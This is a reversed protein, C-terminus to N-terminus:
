RSDCPRSDQGPLGLLRPIPLGACHPIIVILGAGIFSLTQPDSASDWITIHRPVVYPWLSVLLGLFGLLFTFISLVFVRTDSTGVFARWTAVLTGITVLPVLGLEAISPWSFWRQDVAPQSFATWASVIAM